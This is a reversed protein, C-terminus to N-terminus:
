LDRALVLAHVPRIGARHLTKACEALTSTTTCVDDILLFSRGRLAERKVSALPHLSFSQRVNDQRKQRNLKVQSSTPRTRILLPVVPRTIQRGLESALLEAQNYGRRRENQAYLPVPVLGQIHHLEPSQEWAYRMLIALPRALSKRGLYKFRYVAPLIVGRFEVAARVLLPPPSQRCDFCIQGGYRLPIGCGRCVPGQIRPISLWCSGCFGEDELSALPARCGACAWPLVFRLLHQWIRSM